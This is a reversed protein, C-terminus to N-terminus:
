PQPRWGHQVVTRLEPWGGTAPLTNGLAIFTEGPTERPHYGRVDIVAVKAKALAARAADLYRSTAPHDHAPAPPKAAFMEVGPAPTKLWDNVTAVSTPKAAPTSLEARTTPDGLVALMKDVAAAYQKADTAAEVEPIAKLLAADLDVERQWLGPHFFRVHA